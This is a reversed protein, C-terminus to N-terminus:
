PLSPRNMAELAARAADRVRGDPDNDRLEALRNKAEPARLMALAQIGAIMADQQQQANLSTNQTHGTHTSSRLVRSTLPECFM